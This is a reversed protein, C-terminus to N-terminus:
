TTARHKTNQQVNYKSYMWTGTPVILQIKWNQLRTWKLLTAVKQLPETKSPQPELKLLYQHLGQFALVSTSKCVLRLTRVKGYYLITHRLQPVAQIADILSICQDESACEM